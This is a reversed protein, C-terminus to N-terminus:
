VRERCSARGIEHSHEINANEQAIKHASELEDVYSKLNKNRNLSSRWNSLSITRLASLLPDITEINEKRRYINEINQTM